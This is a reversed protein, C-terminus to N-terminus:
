GFRPRVDLIFFFICQPSSEFSINNGNLIIPSKVKPVDKERSLALFAKTLVGDKLAQQKEDRYLDM